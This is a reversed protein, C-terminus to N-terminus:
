TIEFDVNPGAPPAAPEARRQPSGASDPGSDIRRVIISNMRAAVVRIPAGSEIMMGESQCHVRQGDIRAMGAPNLLTVTEGTKGVMRAFEQHRTGFADVEQPTPAELIARRGLPTSPWLHFAYMVSAPLLVLMSGVFGFFYGPSRPWWANWACVVASLLSGIALVLIIGGSPIFVEAVLLVVGIALLLIAGVSYDMLSGLSCM